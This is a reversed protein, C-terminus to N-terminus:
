QPLSFSLAEDKLVILSGRCLSEIVLTKSLSLTLNLSPSPLFTPTSGMAGFIKGGGGWHKERNSKLMRHLNMVPSLSPCCVDAWALGSLGLESPILSCGLHRRWSTKQSSWASIAAISPQEAFRLLATTRIVHRWHGSGPKLWSRGHVGTYPLNCLRRQEHGLFVM